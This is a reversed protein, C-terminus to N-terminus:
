LVGVQRPVFGATFLSPICAEIWPSRMLFQDGIGVHSGIEM